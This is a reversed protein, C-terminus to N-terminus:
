FNIASEKQPARGNKKVEKLLREQEALFGEVKSEPVGYTLGDAGELFYIDEKQTTNM